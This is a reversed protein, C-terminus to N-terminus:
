NSFCRGSASRTYNSRDGRASAGQQDVIKRTPSVGEALAEQTIAEIEGQQRERRSLFKKALSNFDISIGEEELELFRRKCYAEFGTVLMVITMNTSVAEFIVGEPSVGTLLIKVAEVTSDWAEIATPQLIPRGGEFIRTGMVKVGKDGVQYVAGNAGVHFQRPSPEGVGKLLLGSGERLDGVHLRIEDPSWVLFIQVKTSGALPKIDVSAVRTGTGPSSHFFHLNLKPDRELRFIIAGTALEFLIGYGLAPDFLGDFSYIFSLTGEPRKMVDRLRKVAEPPVGPIHM